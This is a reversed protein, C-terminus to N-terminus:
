RSLTPIEPNKEEKLARDAPLSEGAWLKQGTWQAPPASWFEATAPLGLPLMGTSCLYLSGTSIYTEGQSVQHGCFGVQLWGSKDFTGPAEIMRHIVQTLACRVQAPLVKEPLSSLLAMQGLCQFAGFRYTISRGEAPYTAEPSILREQIEAYRAARKVILKYAPEFRADKGKLFGVIDVLIPHIVFSNYYDFRFYEGDAYLGDGRYWDLMKRLYGELREELTHEGLLHLAAEVSASFLIHNNNIPPIGRSAKLSAIVRAKTESNFKSVLARPSRLFAQALFATDVLPQQGQSFNMYDASSPDTANEISKIALSLFESQLKAESGSVEKLELWPAMGVLLRSIAELHTYHRLKEQNGFTEVPMNKRLTGAALNELVPRAIKELVKLWYTRAEKGENLKASATEEVAALASPSILLSPAVAAATTGIRLFDRRTRM